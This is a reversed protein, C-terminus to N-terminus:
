ALGSEARAQEEILPELGLDDGELPGHGHGERQGRGVAEARARRRPDQAILREEYGTVLDETADEVGGTAGDISQAREFALGVPRQPTGSGIGESSSGDGLHEGRANADDIGQAREAQPM